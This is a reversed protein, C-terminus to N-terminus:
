GLDRLSSVVKMRFALWGPWLAAVVGICLAIAMAKACTSPMIQLTQIFPITWNKLPTYSFAIFPGLSGVLGGIACLLLSETQILTFAFGGGFGLSKLTAVENIRDRFNMSMTNAAALVAVLVTI